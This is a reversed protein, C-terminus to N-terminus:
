TIDWKGGNSKSLESVYPNGADAESELYKRLTKLSYYMAPVSIPRSLERIADDIPTIVILMLGDEKTTIQYNNWSINNITELERQIDEITILEKENNREM